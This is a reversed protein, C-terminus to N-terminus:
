KTVETLTEIFDTLRGLRELKDASPHQGMTRLLKRKDGELFQLLSVLEPMHQHLTRVAAKTVNARRARPKYGAKKLRYRIVELPLNLDRKTQAMSDGADYRRKIESTEIPHTM